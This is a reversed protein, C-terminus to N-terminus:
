YGGYYSAYPYGYRSAYRYRSSRGDFGSSLGGYGYGGYGYGGYGYGSNERRQRNSISVSIPGVSGSDSASLSKEPFGDEEAEAYAIFIIAFSIVFLILLTRFQFM